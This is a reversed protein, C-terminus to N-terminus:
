KRQMDICEVSWKILLQEPSSDKCWIEYVEVYEPFGARIREKNFMDAKGILDYLRNSFSGTYGYQWFYLERKAKIIEETDM